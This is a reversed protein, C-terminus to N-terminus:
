GFVQTVSLRSRLHIVGLGSIPKTCWLFSCNSFNVARTSVALGTVVVLVLGVVLPISGLMWYIGIVAVGIIIVRWIQISIDEAGWLWLLGTGVHVM